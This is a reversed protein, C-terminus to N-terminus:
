RDAQPMAHLYGYLATIESDTLHSLNNRAQSAMVGLKRDGLPVGTRLLRAFAEPSYAAVVRLDPSAFDPNEAGRLSTGHCAACITRALYRGREAEETAGAPPPVTDAILQAVTKFKGVALGIRGLPGVSVNADPGSVQPLTRLFAIIRGLDADTLGIFAEAPMVMVSRGDPRIGNRIIVALEADSYKRVATTLNPAVIRAIPPDDFLVRGEAEKGHCDNFCGRVTALRRGERISEADTPISLAVAPVDYARRLMRESLAYVLGYAIIALAIVSGLVIGIWRLLRRM